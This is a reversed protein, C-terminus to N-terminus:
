MLVQEKQTLQVVLSTIFIVEGHQVADETRKWKM